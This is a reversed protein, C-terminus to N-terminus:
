ASLRYSLRQYYRCEGDQNKRANSFDYEKEACDRSVITIDCGLANAIRILTDLRPINRKSELRAIALPPVGSAEALQRQTLGKKHREDILRDIVALCFEPM